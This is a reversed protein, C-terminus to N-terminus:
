PRGAAGLAVLEDYFEDGMLRAGTADYHLHADQGHGRVGDVFVAEPNQVAVWEHAAQITRRYVADPHPGVVGDTRDGRVWEPVMGGILFPAHGYRDGIGDVLELLRSRYRGEVAARETANAADRLVGSDTEGQIWIVAVLRNDEDALARDIQTRANDYLNVLGAEASGADPSPDWTYKEGKVKTLSTSGKAAPVLLVRRGPAVGELLRRGLEMGPGVLPGGAPDKWTDVHLLSHSAPIVTGILPGNGVLQDLGPRGADAVPDFHLGAGQANSQGLIAVVDSGKGDSAGATSWTVAGSPVATSRALSRIGPASATVTLTLRTGLADRGITYTPATRSPDWVGDVYWRYAYATPAPTWTGTVARVTAGVHLEGAITPASSVLFTPAAPAPTPAVTPQPVPAATPATTPTPQPAPPVASGNVVATAASTKAVTAYGTKTATVTVTIRTGADASTLKLTAVTAGPILLGNRWWAYSYTGVPTWSGPRATLTAGVAATGSITPTAPRFAAPAVAATAASTRSTPEYGAKTMTVRVTIPRGAEAATLVLRASTAKAVPQGAAFWQYAVAGLPKWTGPIATLTQGVTATGTVTPTPAVTFAAAARPALASSASGGAPAPTAASAPDGFVPPVALSLVLAAALASGTLLLRRPRASLV